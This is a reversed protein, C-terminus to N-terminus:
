EDRYHMHGVGGWLSAGREELRFGLRFDFVTPSNDDISRLDNPYALMRSLPYLRGMEPNRIEEPRSWGPVTQNDQFHNIEWRQTSGSSSGNRLMGVIWRVKGRYGEILASPDVRTLRFEGQNIEDPGRPTFEHSYSLEEIIKGEADRAVAIFCAKKGKPVRFQFGVSDLGLIEFLESSVKDPNLPRVYFEPEDDAQYAALLSTASILSCIAVLGWRNLRWKSRSM